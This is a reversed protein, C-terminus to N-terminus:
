ENYNILTDTRGDNTFFRWLGSKLDDTYFGNYYIKGNPFYGTQEGHRLDYRYSSEMRVTGDVFFQTWSGHLLDNKWNKVEFISGDYYFTKTTGNLKGRYYQESMILVSDRSYYNWTSDKLEGVYM